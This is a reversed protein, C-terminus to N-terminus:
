PAAELFPTLKELFGPYKKAIVGLLEDFGDCVKKINELRCHEVVFHQHPNNWTLVMQDYPGTQVPICYLCSRHAFKYRCTSASYSFEFGDQLHGTDISMFFNVVLRAGFEIKKKMRDLNDQGQSLRMLGIGSM